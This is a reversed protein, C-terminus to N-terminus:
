ADARGLLRELAAGFALVRRDRGRGGIAQLGVPLGGAQCPLSLAPLDFFNAVWTNRLLLLNVRALEGADVMAALPPALIPVTPTVVMDVEEFVADMEAMLEARARTMWIYHAADVSMGREIRSRIFPDIAGPDARMQAAFVFSSEVNPFTARANVEAMRGLLPGLRPALIRAGADSLRDLARDLAARVPPEAGDLFYADPGAVRLGDLPLPAPPPAEDGALVGDLLALEAVGLGMPGAVDFSPCLPVMGERPVRAQSPRLGVTGCLASPMRVSGGTDSGVSLDCMGRRLAIAAGTSSGGPIRAPDAPNGPDGLHPNLGVASFAFETMHTKGVIVAGARRLRRVVPADAEAPPAAALLRSGANTTEGAVDFLDKISVIAGDLASLPRGAALRAGAAAADARAAEEYLRTFVIEGQAGPAAIAALCAELRASPDATGDQWATGARGM